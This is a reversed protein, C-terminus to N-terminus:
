RRKKTVIVLPQDMYVLIRGHDHREQIHEWHGNKIMRYAAAYRAKASGVYDMRRAAEPLPAVPRGNVFQDNIRASGAQIPRPGDNLERQLENAYAQLDDYRSQLQHLMRQLTMNEQVLEAYSREREPDNVRAVQAAMAAGIRRENASM